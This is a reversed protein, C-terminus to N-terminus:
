GLNKKILQMLVDKTDGNCYSTETIVIKKLYPPNHNDILSELTVKLKNSKTWVEPQRRLYTYVALVTVGIVAIYNSNPTNKFFDLAKQM